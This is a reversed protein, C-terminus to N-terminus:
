SRKSKILIAAIVVMPLIILLMPWLYNKKVPQLAATCKEFDPCNPDCQASQCFDDSELACDKACSVHNESSQCINDGCRDTFVALSTTALKKGNHSIELTKALPNFPLAVPLAIKDKIIPKDSIEMAPFEILPLPLETEYLINNDADKVDAKFYGGISLTGAQVPLTTVPSLKVENHSYDMNVYYSRWQPNEKHTSETQTRREIQHIIASKSVDNYSGFSVYRMISNASSRYLNPSTCGEICDSKEDAWKPCGAVDCNPMELILDEPLNYTFYDSYTYEDALNGFSHGLEHALILGNSKSKACLKTYFSATGCGADSNILVILGDYNCQSATEVVKADNCCVMTEVGNCGVRCELDKTPNIFSFSFDEFNSKFPEIESITNKGLLLSKADQKFDELDSYGYPLILFNIKELAPSGVLASCKSDQLTFESLDTGQSNKIKYTGLAFNQSDLIAGYKGDKAAGDQHQGDDYLTLPIQQGDKEITVSLDQFEERPWTDAVVAFVTGEQSTTPTVTIDLRSQSTTGGVYPTPLETTDIIDRSFVTINLLIFTGLLIGIVSLVIIVLGTISLNLAM